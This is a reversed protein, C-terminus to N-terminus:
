VERKALFLHMEREFQKNVAIKMSNGALFINAAWFRLIIQTRNVGLFFPM